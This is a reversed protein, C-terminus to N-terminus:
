NNIVVARVVEVDSNFGAVVGQLSIHENAQPITSEDLLVCKVAFIPDSTNLLVIHSGDSASSVELVDGEIRIVKDVYLANAEAENNSFASFLESSSVTHEPKENATDVHSKNFLGIAVAGGIVIATFAGLSIITRRKM